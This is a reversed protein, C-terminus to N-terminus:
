PSPTGTLADLMALEWEFDWRRAAALLTRLPVGKMDRGRRWEFTLAGDRHEICWSLNPTPWQPPVRPVRPSCWEEVDRLISAPMWESGGFRISYALVGNSGITVTL